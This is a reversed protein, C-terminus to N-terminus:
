RVPCGDYCADGTLPDNLYTLVNKRAFLNTITGHLALLADRGGIGFHWHKRLAVDVRKHSPINVGAIRAM